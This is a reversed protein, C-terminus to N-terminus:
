SLLKQKLVRYRDKLNVATRNSFNYEDLINKWNGEGFVKIGEMLNKDETDRWKKRSGQRQKGNSAFAEPNRSSAQNDNLWAEDEKSLKLTVGRDELRRHKRRYKPHNQISTNNTVLLKNVNTESVATDSKHAHDLKLTEGDDRSPFYKSTKLPPSKRNEDVNRLGSRLVRRNIPSYQFSDQLARIRAVQQRTRINNLKRTGNNHSIKRKKPSSPNLQLNQRKTANDKTKHQQILNRVKRSKVVSSESTPKQIGQSSVGIIDNYGDARVVPSTMPVVNSLLSEAVPTDCYILTSSLIPSSRNSDDLCLNAEESFRSDHLYEEQITIDHRHTNSYYLDRSNGEVKDPM